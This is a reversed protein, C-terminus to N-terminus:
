FFFLCVAVDIKQLSASKAAVFNTMVELRFGEEKPLSLSFLLFFLM